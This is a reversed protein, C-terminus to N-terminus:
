TFNAETLQKVEVQYGVVRLARVRALAGALTLYKKAGYLDGFQPEGYCDRDWFHFFDRHPRGAVQKVVITNTM